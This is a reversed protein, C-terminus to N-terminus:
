ARKLELLLEEIRKHDDNFQNPGLKWQLLNRKAKQGWALAESRNGLGAYVYAMREMDETVLVELGETQSIEFIENEWQVVQEADYTETTLTELMQHLEAFRERRWDSETIKYIGSACLNCTCKFGWNDHYLKQREAFKLDVKGYSITIEQGPEIDRMARIEMLLTPPIFKANANPQCAHNIRSVQPFLCLYEDGVGGDNFRCSFSNTKLIADLGTAGAPKDLAMITNYDEGKLMSAATELLESGESPTVHIPLRASSVIAPSDLMIVDGKSIRRKAIVGKGKGRIDHVDYLDAQSSRSARLVFEKTKSSYEEEDLTYQRAKLVGDAAEPTSIISLGRMKTTEEKADVDAEDIIDELMKRMRTMRAKFEELDNLYLRSKTVAKAELKASINIDSARKLLSKALRQIRLGLLVRGDSAFLIMQPERHSYRNWRMFLAHGREIDVPRKREHEIYWSDLAAHKIDALAKSAESVTYKLQASLVDARHGNSVDITPFDTM